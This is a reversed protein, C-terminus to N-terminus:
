AGRRVTVVTFGDTEVELDPNGNRALMRRVLRIGRGLQEVYGLEVLWRTITPNRYDAHSGFEGESAHGFPGGPNSFVIRDDFWEVRAPANTGEYLRHQVLNRALERLAELPYEPRYPTKIGEAPVPISALHASLQAWIAELQDTLTGTITKRAAVPADVETGGYRVFEIVAGPFYEQPNQGFLLLAAANPIWIEGVTRGLDKRTLWAELTPFSESDHDGERATEYMARLTSVRLDELRAGPFLRYDFPQRSEPRRERLRLLDAERARETVTGRRVWATGDVTVVPPVPYPEIRVVLITRGDRQVPEMSYSPTPVLKVSSLRNALKQQVEDLDSEVGVVQGDDALGIVLFGPRRSDGLDNALAGAARLIDGVDAASQKWEVRESEGALADRLDEPTM